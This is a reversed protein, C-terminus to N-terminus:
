SQKRKQLIIFQSIENQIDTDIGPDESIRIQAPSENEESLQSYSTNTYDSNLYLSTTPQNETLEVDCSDDDLFTGTGSYTQSSQRSQIRHISQNPYHRTSRNMIHVNSNTDIHPSNPTKLVEEEAESVIRFVERKVRVQINEPFTKVTEGLNQFFDIVRDPQKQSSYKKEIYSQFLKHTSSTEPVDALSRKNIKYPIFRKKTQPTSEALVPENAPSSSQSINDQDTMNINVPSDLTPMSSETETESQIYPSLFSLIKDYKPQKFHKAAQGSKTTRLKKARRYNERIRKWRERCEQASFLTFSKNKLNKAVPFENLDIAKM